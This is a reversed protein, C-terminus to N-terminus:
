SMMLLELLQLSRSLSDASSLSVESRICWVQLAQELDVTRAMEDLLQVNQVQADRLWAPEPSLQAQVFAAREGCDDSCWKEMEARDVIRFESGGKRNWVKRAGPDLKKNPKSCLAYGCRDDINRERVLDDFDSPQFLGLCSKFHQIDITSAHSPSSAPQSPLDYAELILDLIRAQLAKEEQLRLAHRLATSQHRRADPNTSSPSSAM